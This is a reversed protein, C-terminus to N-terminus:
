HHKEYWGVVGYGIATLIVLADVWLCYVCTAHLIFFQVYLLWLSGISAIFLGIFATRALITKLSKTHNMWSKALHLLFYLAFISFAGIGLLPNAIPYVPLGFSYAYVSTQVRACGSGTAFCPDLSEHADADNAQKQVLIHYSLIVCAIMALAAFTYFLKHVADKTLM